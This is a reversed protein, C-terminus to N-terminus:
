ADVEVRSQRDAVVNLEGALYVAELSINCKECWVALVQAKALSQPPGVM